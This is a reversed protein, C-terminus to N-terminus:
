RTRARARSSSASAARANPSAEYGCADRFRFHALTRTRARWGSSCRACAAGPQDAPLRQGAGGRAPAAAMAVSMELRARMLEFLVALEDERLPAVEHYGRVLPVVARAPDPQGQMAYAGAVALGCVRATYVVDGFDILGTM